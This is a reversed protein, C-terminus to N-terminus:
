SRWRRGEGVCVTAGLMPVLSGKGGYFAVILILIQFSVPTSDIASMLVVVIVAVKLWRGVCHGRGHFGSVVILVRVVLDILGISRSPIPAHGCGHVHWIFAPIWPGEGGVHAVSRCGALLVVGEGFEAVQVDIVGLVAAQEL